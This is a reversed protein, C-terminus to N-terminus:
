NPPKILKDPTYPPPATPATPKRYGCEPILSSHEVLGDDKTPNETPIRNVTTRVIDAWMEDDLLGDRRLQAAADLSLAIVHTDNVASDIALQPPDSSLMYKVASSVSYSLHKVVWYGLELTIDLVVGLVM